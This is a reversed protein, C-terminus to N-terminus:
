WVPVQVETLLRSEKQGPKLTMYVVRVPGPARKLKNAAIYEEIAKMAFWCDRIQGRHIAAAVKAPPLIKVRYGPPPDFLERTRLGIELYRGKPDDDVLPLKDLWVQDYYLGIAPGGAKKFLPTKVLDEFKYASLYYGHTDPKFIFKMGPVHRVTVHYTQSPGPQSFGVPRDQYKAACGALGPVLALAIVLVLLRKM